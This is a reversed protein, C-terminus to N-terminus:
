GFRLNKRAWTYLVVVVILTAFTGVTILGKVITNIVGESIDGEDYSANYAM